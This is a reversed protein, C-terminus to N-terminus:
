NDHCMDLCLAIDVHMNIGMAMEAITLIKNAHGWM